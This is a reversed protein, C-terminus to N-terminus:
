APCRARRHHHPSLVAGVRRRPDEFPVSTRTRLYQMGRGLCFSEIEGCYAALEAQFRRVLEADLFLRRERRSEVDLLSLDGPAAPDLEADDLIHVALVDHRRALLEGLAARWGHPEFFDSLVVV